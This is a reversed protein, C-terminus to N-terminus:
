YDRTIIQLNSPVSVGSTSSGTGPQPIHVCAEGESFESWESYTGARLRACVKNGLNIGYQNLYAVFETDNWVIPFTNWNGDNIQYDLQYRDVNETPPNREWTFRLAVVASGSSGSSSNNNGPPCSKNADGDWGWQSTDNNPYVCAASAPPIMVVVLVCLCILTIVKALSVAGSHRPEPGTGYGGFGYGNCDHDPAYAYPLGGHGVGHSKIAARDRNSVQM